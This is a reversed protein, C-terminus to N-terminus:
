PKRWAGISQSRASLRAGRTQSPVSGRRHEPKGTQCRRIRPSGFRATGSSTSSSMGEEEDLADERCSLVGLAASAEVKATPIASRDRVSECCAASAALADDTLRKM